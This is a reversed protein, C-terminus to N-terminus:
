WAEVVAELIRRATDDILDTQAASESRSGSGTLFYDTEGMVQQHRLVEGQPDTLKINVYLRLRQEKVEDSDTYRLTEKKYDTVECELKLAQPDQSVVKLNGDINFKNTLENTLKNEILAPFSFYGSYKRSESTIDIKNTAPVIIISSEDYIVGRTSYGCGIILFFLSLILSKKMEKRWSARYNIKNKQCLSSVRLELKEEAERSM